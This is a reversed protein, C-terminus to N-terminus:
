CRCDEIKSSRWYSTMFPYFISILKDFLRWELLYLQLQHSRIEIKKRGFQFKSSFERFFSYFKDESQLIRALISQLLSCKLFNNM